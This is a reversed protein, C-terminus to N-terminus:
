FNNRNCCFSRKTCKLLGDKERKETKREFIDKLVEATRDGPRQQQHNQSDELSSIALIGSMDYRYTRRSWCGRSKSKDHVNRNETSILTKRLVRVRRFWSPMRLRFQTQEVNLITNNWVFKLRNKVYYKPSIKM